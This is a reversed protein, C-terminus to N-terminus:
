AGAASAGSGHERYIRGLARVAAAWEESRTEWGGSMRLTRDAAEPSIGMARLGRSARAAGRSCAAGTSAVVGAAELRVVWRNRCDGLEPLIVSVTNWLRAVASGVVEAGPVEEQLVREWHERRAVRESVEGQREEGESLAGWLALVGAVNGTGARRGGEQGGGVVLPHLGSGEPVKLFGVGVPGGVKHGSGVVYDAVGLGAGALRGVWQTADCLFPVGRERCWAGVEQWPQLVGTENNAAQVCVAVPRGQTWFEDLIGPNMRGSRELGLEEVGGPFWREAAERVCPHEGASVWIRGRERAERGLHALVTNAGETAGSTWVVSEAAAGLAAGLAERVEGLAREARQGMRHASSPNAPYKEQAELWM